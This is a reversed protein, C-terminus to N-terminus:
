AADEEAVPPLGAMRRREAGYLPSLQELSLVGHVLSQLLPDGNSGSAPNDLLLVTCDRRALEAKLALLQRRFRLASQALM